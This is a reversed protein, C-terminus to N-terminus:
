YNLAFLDGDADLIFIKGFRSAKIEIPSDIAGADPTFDDTRNELSVVTKTDQTIFLDSPLAWITGNRDGFVFTERLSELAGRFFAGLVIGSGSRPGDGVPYVVRPLILDSPNGERLRATGEFFPYGFNSGFLFSIEHEISAGQDALIPSLTGALLGSPQRIGRGVTEFAIQASSPSPAGDAKLLKGYGSDGQARAGGPDGIAAYLVGINDIVLQGDADNPSGFALTAQVLNSAVPRVVRIGNESRVMVVPGPLLTPTNIRGFEIDIVEDGPALEVQTFLQKEGTSQNVTWLRGGREAIVVNTNSIVDTAMGVPDVFGTAFRRVDVGEKDNTVTVQADVRATARGDSAVVDFRYVNDADGDQPLDFNPASRFTVDGGSSVRFLAADAGALAYSVSDGDPDSARASFLAPSTNERVTATKAGGAFTPASNTPTPTPAPSSGGGGCGSLALGAIIPSFVLIRALARHVFFGQM